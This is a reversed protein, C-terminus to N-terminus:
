GDGNFDWDFRTLTGDLDYSASADFVAPLGIPPQQPTVSFIATPPFNNYGPNDFTVNAEVEIRNNGAALVVKAKATYRAVSQYAYAFTTQLGSFNRVQSEDGPYFLTELATLNGIGTPLALRFIVELSSNANPKFRATQLALEPYVGVPKEETATGGKNDAVKLWALYIGPQQYAHTATPGSAVGSDGFEWAYATINGDQDSSGSASFSVTQGARPKLPSFSLKAIPQQNTQIVEMQRAAKAALGSSDTVTLSVNYRGANRYMNQVRVYGAGGGIRSGEGFDWDYRAISGDPDSSASADFLVNSGAAPQAPTFTFNASPQQGSSSRETVNVAATAAATNSSNDTVTLKAAYTGKRAFAHSAAVGSATSGDGFDWSYSAIHGDADRSETADFVVNDNEKPSVPLFKFRAEPKGPINDQAAKVDLPKAVDAASDRDDVVSLRITYVGAKGYAHAVKEGAGQAGDGFDWSYAQLEGDPDYSSSADFSVTQNVLPQSPSAEFLAVPRKNEAVGCAQGEPDCSDTGAGEVKRCSNSVCELHYEPKKQTTVTNEASQVWDWPLAVICKTTYRVLHAGAASFAYTVTRTQGLQTLSNDKVEYWRYEPDIICDRVSGTFTIQQGVQPSQPSYSFSAAAQVLPMSALLALLLPLPRMM